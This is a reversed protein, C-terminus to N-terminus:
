ARSKDVCGTSFLSAPPVCLLAHCPNLLMSGKSALSCVAHPMRDGQSLLRRVMDTLWVLRPVRRRRLGHGQTLRSHWAEDTTSYSPAEIVDWASRM